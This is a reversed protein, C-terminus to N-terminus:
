NKIYFRLSNLLFCISIWRWPVSWAHAQSQMSDCKTYINSRFNKNLYIFILDFSLFFHMSTSPHWQSNIKSEIKWNCRSPIELEWSWCPAVTLASFLLHTSLPPNRWKLQKEVMESYSVVSCIWNKSYCSLKLLKETQRLSM